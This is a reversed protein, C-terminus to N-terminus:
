ASGARKRLRSTEEGRQGTREEEVKEAEVRRYKRRECCGMVGIVFSAFFSVGVLIGTVLNRAERSAHARRREQETRSAAEVGSYPVRVAPVVAHTATDICIPSDFFASEEETTRTTGLPCAEYTAPTRFQQTFTDVATWVGFLFASFLLMGILVGIEDRSIRM